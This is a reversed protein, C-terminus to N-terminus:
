DKKTNAEPNRRQNHHNVEKTQKELEIIKKALIGIIELLEGQSICDESFLFSIDEITWQKRRRWPKEEGAELMKDILEKVKM